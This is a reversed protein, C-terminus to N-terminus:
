LRDLDGDNILGVAVAHDAVQARSRLGLKALIHHVHLGATGETIALARAIEKDTAAQILLLAVERERPTLAEGRGSPSARGARRSPAALTREVVNEVSEMAGACWQEDFAAEGLEGRAQTLHRAVDDREGPPAPVGASQRLAHAAACLRVRSATDEPGGYLALYELASALARLDRMDWSWRVGALAAVRAVRSGAERLSALSSQAFARSWADGEADFVASAQQLLNIARSSEGQRHLVHGTLILAHGLPWTAGSERAHRIADEALQRARQVDGGALTTQALIVLVLALGGSNGSERYADIAQRGVAEAEANQGVLSRMLTLGFLGRARLEVPLSEANAVGVEFWHEAEHLHRRLWLFYYLPGAIGLITQADGAQEARGLVARINDLEADLRHLWEMQNRTPLEREAREALRRCYEAQRAYTLQVEGSEVLRQAAYQRVPELLRYRTESDSAQAVVLSKDVLAALVLLVDTRLSEDECLAEAAELSWNGALVALRRFVTKEATSLL